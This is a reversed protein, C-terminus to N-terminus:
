LYQVGRGLVDVMLRGCSSAFVLNMYTIPESPLFPLIFRSEGPPEEPETEDEAEEVLSQLIGRTWGRGERGEGASGFATGTGTRGRRWPNVVRMRRQGEEAGHGYQVDVVAYAHLPVVRPDRILGHRNQHDYKGTGLTILLTGERWGREM